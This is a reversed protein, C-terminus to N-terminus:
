LRDAYNSDALPGESIVATNHQLIQIDTAIIETRYHKVQQADLMMKTKIKGTVHLLQGKKLLLNECPSGQPIKINHHEIHELNENGKKITETTILSFCLENGATSNHFRPEGAIHGVLFVKNIGSNNQM